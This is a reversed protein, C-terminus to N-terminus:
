KNRDVTTVPRESKCDIWGGVISVVGQQSERSAANDREGGIEIGDVDRLAINSVLGVSKHRSRGASTCAFPDLASSGRQSGSRTIVGRRWTWNFFPRMTPICAAIMVINQEVSPAIDTTAFSDILSRYSVPGLSRTTRTEVSCPRSCLDIPLSTRNQSVYSSRNYRYVPVSVNGQHNHRDCEVADYEDQRYPRDENGVATTAELLRSSSGSCARRRHTHHIRLVLMLLLQSRQSELLVRTPDEGVAEPHASM